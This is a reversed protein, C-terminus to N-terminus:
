RFLELNRIDNNLALRLDSIKPMDKVLNSGLHKIKKVNKILRSIYASKFKPTSSHYRAYWFKDNPFKQKYYKLILCMRSIAYAEDKKLRKVDLGKGTKEKFFAPTWVNLNIQAISIDNTESVASQNFASEVNLVSLIIRPDIKYKVSNIAVIASLRRAKNKQISPNLTLIAREIRFIVRKFDNKIQNHNEVTKPKKSIIVSQGAFSDSVSIGFFFLLILQLIKVRFNFITKTFFKSM